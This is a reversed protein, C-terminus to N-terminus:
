ESVRLGSLRRKTKASLGRLGAVHVDATGMVECADSRQGGRGDGADHGSSLKGLHAAEWMSQLRIKIHFGEEVEVLASREVRRLERARGRARRDISRGVVTGGRGELCVVGVHKGAWAMFVIAELLLGAQRNTGDGTERGHVRGDRVSEGGAMGKAAEVRSDVVHGKVVTEITGPRRANIDVGVHAHVEVGRLGNRSDVVGLGARGMRAGGFKDVWSRDSGVISRGAIYASDPRTHVLLLCLLCSHGLGLYLGLDLLLSHLELSLLLLLSTKRLLLLLLLCLVLLLLLGFGFWVSAASRRVLRVGVGLLANGAKEVLHTLTTSSRRAFVIRGVAHKRMNSAHALLLFVHILILAQEVTLLALLKAALLSALKAVFNGGTGETRTSLTLKDLL